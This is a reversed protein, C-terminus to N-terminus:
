RRPGRVDCTVTQFPATARSVPTSSASACPFGMLRNTARSAAPRSSASQALRQAAVGHVAHVQRQDAGAAALGPHGEVGRRHAVVAARHSPTTAMPWSWVRSRLRSAAASCDSFSAPSPRSAAPMTWSSFLGSTATVMYASESKM